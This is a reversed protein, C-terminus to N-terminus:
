FCPAHKTCTAFSHVARRLFQWEYWGHFAALDLLDSAHAREDRMDAEPQRVTLGEDPIGAFIITSFPVLLMAILMGVLVRHTASIESSHRKPTSTNM